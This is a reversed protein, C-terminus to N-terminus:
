DLIAPEKMCLVIVAALIRLSALVLLALKYNGTMHHLYGVLTPGLSGGIQGLSNITAIAIAAAEGALMSAFAWFPPHMSFIGVGGLCLGALELAPSHVLAAVIVGLAGMLLTFALHKRREKHKDSSKGVVYMSVAGIAYPLMSLLTTPLVPLGFGQKIILPLFFTLSIVTTVGCFYVLSLVLVRPMVVISWTSHKVESKNLSSELRLRETLWSKEETSLWKADAPRDVMRVFFVIGLLISPLGELFFLWRWAEWGLLGDTYRLILGSIPAGVVGTIPIALMFFALMQARYKAPFWLTLYYIIGPLFGAEGVGLLVRVVYFSWPGHVLAMSCALLGWTVMIRTIWLRAGVKHLLMNSPIEFLVYGWFFLGAGFGFMEGSLGLSKNMTLAAYAINFRDLYAAFYCIALLPVIRLTNKRVAEKEISEM